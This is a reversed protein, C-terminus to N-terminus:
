EYATAQTAAGGVGVGCGSKLGNRLPREAEGCVCLVGGTVAAM